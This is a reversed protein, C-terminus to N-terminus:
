ATSISTRIPETPDHLDAVIKQYLERAIYRKLCRMAERKTKGEAMRREVYEQTRSDWRHRNVTIMHLACNAERNGGRNLRHRQQRGSSADLPSSGCLAAFSAESHLREPNDGAAVLLAGATWPGVGSTAMTRPAAKSLLPELHSDLMTVEETLALWRRALTRLVVKAAEQPSTVDTPRMRAAQSIRKKATLGKFQERLSEPANDLVSQLQNAAQTRAKIASRRAVRLLRIAEVPGSAAKPIATAEAALVARAANEADIPDSKGRRRRRQRNPRNVEVVSIGQSALFRSLGAGFAGTGEVGVATVEGHGRLWDLLGRYGSSSTCFSETDVLRGLGDLAAAVHLDKHTDVGGTIAHQPDTM